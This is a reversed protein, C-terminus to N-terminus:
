QKTAQKLIMYSAVVQFCISLFLIAMPLYLPCEVLSNPILACFNIFKLALNLDHRGRKYLNSNGKIKEDYQARM